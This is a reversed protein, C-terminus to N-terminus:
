AGEMISLNGTTSDEIAAIKLTTPNVGNPLAIRFPVNAPVYFNQAAAKVAVPTVAITCWCGISATLLLVQTSIQFPNSAVSVAGIAVTQVTGFVLDGTPLQQTDLVQKM